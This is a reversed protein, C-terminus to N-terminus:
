DYEPARANQGTRTTQAAVLEMVATRVAGGEVESLVESVAENM